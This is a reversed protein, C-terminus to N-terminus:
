KSSMITNANINVNANAVANAIANANRNGKEMKETKFREDGRKREKQQQL